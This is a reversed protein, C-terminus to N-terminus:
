AEGGGPGEDDVHFMNPANDRVIRWQINNPNGGYINNIYRPEADAIKLPRMNDMLEKNLEDMIQEKDADYKYRRLRNVKYVGDRELKITEARLHSCPQHELTYSAGLESNDCDDCYKTRHNKCAIAQRDGEPTGITAFSRMFTPYEIGCVECRFGLNMCSRCATRQTGHDLFHHMEAKAKYEDCQICKNYDRGGCNLCLKEGRPYILLKHRGRCNECVGYAPDGFHLHVREIGAIHETYGLAYDHPNGQHHPNDERYAQQSNTYFWRTNDQEAHMEIRPLGSWKSIISTIRDLTLGMGKGYGNCFVAINGSYRDTYQEPVYDMQDDPFIIWSRAIGKRTEPNFFRVAIVGNNVLVRRKAPDAMFCSGIDGFDGEAWEIKDTFDFVYRSNKVMSDKAISGIASLISPKLKIEGRSNKYLWNAIRTPLTGPYKNDADMWASGIIGTLQVHTEAYVLQHIREIAEETVDTCEYDFTFESGLPFWNKIPGVPEYTKIHMAAGHTM